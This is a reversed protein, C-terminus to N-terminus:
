FAARQHHCDSQRFPRGLFVESIYPQRTAVAQKFYERDGITPFAILAPRGDATLEPQIALLKGAPDSVMMTIFGDYISRYKELRRSLSRAELDGQQEVAGALSIIAQRHTTM